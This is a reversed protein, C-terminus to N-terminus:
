DKSRDAGAVVVGGGSKEYQPLDDGIEYYDGKDAVFIHSEARLGSPYDFAGAMVSIYDLENHKWFLVSGCNKCFGRKAFHSAEYWGINEEGSVSISDDQVNTAALFHGTQKSCQSCHCYVVGRLNGRTEFHVKGCLCSGRRLEVVVVVERNDVVFKPSAALSAKRM